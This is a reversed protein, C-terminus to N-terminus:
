IDTFTDTNLSSVQIFIIFCINRATSILFFADCTSRFQKSAVDFPSVSRPFTRALARTYTYMHSCYTLDANPRAVCSERVRVRASAHGPAAHGANRLPLSERKRHSMVHTRCATSFRCSEPTYTYSLVCGRVHIGALVCKGSQTVDLFSVLVNNRANRRGVPIRIRRREGVAIMRVGFVAGSINHCRDIKTSRCM